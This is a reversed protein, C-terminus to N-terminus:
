KWCPSSSFDSYQDFRKEYDKAYEEINRKIKNFVFCYYNERNIREKLYLMANVESWYERSEWIEIPTGGMQKALQVLKQDKSDRGNSLFITTYEPMLKNQLLVDTRNAKATQNVHGIEHSLKTAALVKGSISYTTGDASLSNMVPYYIPDPYGKEISDGLTITAGVLEGEDNWLYKDTGAGKGKKGSITITLIFNKNNAYRDWQQRGFDTSLLEAKWSEFKETAKDPIDIIIGGDTPTKIVRGTLDGDTDEFSGPDNGNDLFLSFQFPHFIYLLDNSRPASSAIASLSHAQAPIVVSLVLVLSLLVRRLEM